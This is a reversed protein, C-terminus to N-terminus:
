KGSTREEGEENGLMFKEIFEVCWQPKTVLKSSEAAAAAAAAAANQGSPIQYVSTFQTNTRKDSIRDDGDRPPLPDDGYICDSGLRSCRKCPSVGDLHPECKKKGKRCKQCSRIKMGGRKLNTFVTPTQTDESLKTEITSNLISEM